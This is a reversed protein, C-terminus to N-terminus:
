TVTNIENIFTICTGIPLAVNDNSDITFTRPNDDSAPHRWARQADAATTTLDSSTKDVVPIGPYLPIGEVAVIGSAARSLTTDSEHGVELQSVVFAQSISGALAAFTSGLAAKISAWTAKKL